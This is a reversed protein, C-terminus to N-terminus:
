AIMVKKKNWTANVQRISTQTVLSNQLTTAISCLSMFGCSMSGYWRMRFFVFCELDALDFVGFDLADLDDLDDLGDVISGDELGDSLGDSLGVKLGTINLALFVEPSPGTDTGM